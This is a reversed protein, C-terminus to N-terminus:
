LCEPNDMESIDFRLSSDKGGLEYFQLVGAEYISILIAKAFMYGAKDLVMDNNTGKEDSYDIRDLFSFYEILMSKIKRLYQAAEVSASDGVGELLELSFRQIKPDLTDYLMEAGKGLKRLIGTRNVLQWKTGMVFGINLRNITM